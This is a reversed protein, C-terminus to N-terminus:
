AARDEARANRRLWGTKKAAMWVVIGYFVLWCMRLLVMGVLFIYNETCDQHHWLVEKGDSFVVLAVSAVALPVGARKKMLILANGILGFIATGAECGWQRCFAAPDSWLLHSAQDDVIGGFYILLRFVCPVCDLLLVTWVLYGLRQPKVAFQDAPPTETPSQYPNDSM